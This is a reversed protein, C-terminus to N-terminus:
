PIESGWFKKLFKMKKKVQICFLILKSYLLNAIVQTYFIFSIFSPPLPRILSFQTLCQYDDPPSGFEKFGRLFCNEGPKLIETQGVLVHWPPVLLLQLKFASLDFPCDVLYKIFTLQEYPYFINKTQARTKFVYQFYPKKSITQGTHTYLL